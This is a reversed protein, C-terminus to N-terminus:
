SLSRRPSPSRMRVAPGGLTRAVARVDELDAPGGESIIWHIRDKKPCVDLRDDEAILRELQEMAPRGAEKHLEYLLDRVQQQPGADLEPRALDRPRRV